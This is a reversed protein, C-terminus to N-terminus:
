QSIEGRGLIYKQIKLLDASSVKGDRNADAAEASAADLATMNLIAKQIRLLDASNIKGDGNADGYLIVTYRSQLIGSSNRIQVLNGTGVDGTQATGDAKLVAASGNQVGLAAIM